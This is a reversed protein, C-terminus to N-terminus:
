RLRDTIEVGQVAQRGGSDLMAPCAGIDEVSIGDRYPAPPMRQHLRRQTRPVEHGVVQAKVLVSPHEEQRPRVHGSFAGVQSLASDEHDQGLRAAEHGRILSADADDIADEGADTGVVGDGAPQRGEHNLHDLGGVDEVVGGVPAQQDDILDPAAGAGIVADADSLSYDLVDMVSGPKAALGQEGGMEVLQRGQCLPEGRQAIVADLDALVAAPDREQVPDHRAPRVAAIADVHSFNGPEGRHHRRPCPLEEDAQLLRLRQDAGRARSVLQAKRDIHRMRQHGLKGADLDLAETRELREVLQCAELGQARIRALGGAPRSECWNLMWRSPWVTAPAMPAPSTTSRGAETTLCSTSFLMSAPAVRTVMSISPAPTSRIRTASSPAPIPAESSASAKM